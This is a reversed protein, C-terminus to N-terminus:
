VLKCLLASYFAEESMQKIALFPKINEQHFWIFIMANQPFLCSVEKAICLNITSLRLM